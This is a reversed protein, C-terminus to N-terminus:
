KIEMCLQQSPSWRLATDCRLLTLWNWLDISTLLPQQFLAVESVSPSKDFSLWLEAPDVPYGLACVFHLLLRSFRNRACCSFFKDRVSCCWSRGNESVLAQICLEVSPTATCVDTCISMVSTFTSMEVTKKSFVSLGHVCSLMYCTYARYLHYPLNDVLSKKVGLNWPFGM